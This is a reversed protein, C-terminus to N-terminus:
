GAMVSKRGVSSTMLFDKGPKREKKWYAGENRRRQATAEERSRLIRVGSAQKVDLPNTSRLGADRLKVKMKRTAAMDGHWGTWNGGM